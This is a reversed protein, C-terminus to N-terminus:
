AALKKKLAAAARQLGLPGIGTQQAFAQIETGTFHNEYAKNMYLFKEPSVTLALKPDLMFVRSFEAWDEVPDTAAYQTVVLKRDGLAVAPDKYYSSGDKFVGDAVQHDPERWNSLLSWERIAQQEQKGGLQVVHGTEHVITGEGRSIGAVRNSNDLKLATDYLAVYEQGGVETRYGMGRFEKGMLGSQNPRYAGAGPRYQTLLQKERSAAQKSLPTEDGLLHFYTTGQVAGLKRGGTLKELGNYLETVGQVSWDIVQADAGQGAFPSQGVARHVKVGFRDESFGALRDVAAKAQQEPAGTLGAFAKTRVDAPLNAFDSLLNARQQVAMGTTLHGTLAANGGTLAQLQADFHNGLPGDFTTLSAKSRRLVDIAAQRHGDPLVRLRDRLLRLQEARAVKADLKPLAAKLAADSVEMGNLLTADAGLNGLLHRTAQTNIAYYDTTGTKFAQNAIQVIAKADRPDETGLDRLISLLTKVEVGGKPVVLGADQAIAGAVLQQAKVLDAGEVGRAAVKLYKGGQSTAHSDAFRRLRELQGVSFGAKDLRAFDLHAVGRDAYLAQEAGRALQGADLKGKALATQISATAGALDFHNDLRKLYAGLNAIDAAKMGAPLKLGQKQIIDPLLGEAVKRGLKLEDQAVRTVIAKGGRKGQRVFGDKVAATLQQAIRTEITM